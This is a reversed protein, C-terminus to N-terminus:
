DQTAPPVIWKLGDPTVAAIHVHGGVSKCFPDIMAAAEGSQAEIIAKAFEAGAELTATRLNILIREPYLSFRSDNEEILTPIIGSGYSRSQGAL